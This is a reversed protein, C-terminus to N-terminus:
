HFDKENPFTCHVSISLIQDDKFLHMRICHKQYSTRVRHPYLKNSCEGSAICLWQFCNYLCELFTNPELHTAIRFFQTHDWFCNCNISGMSEILYINIKFRNTTVAIWHLDANSCTYHAIGKLSQTRKNNQWISYDKM